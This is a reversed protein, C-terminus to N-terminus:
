LNEEAIICAYFSSGGGLGNCSSTPPIAVSSMSVAQLQDNKTYNNRVIAPM